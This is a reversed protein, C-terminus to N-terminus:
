RITIAKLHQLLRVRAHVDPVGDVGGAEESVQVEEQVVEEEEEDVVDDAEEEWVEDSAILVDPSM